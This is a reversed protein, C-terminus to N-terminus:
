GAVVEVRDDIMRESIQTLPPNALTLVALGGERELRTMTM